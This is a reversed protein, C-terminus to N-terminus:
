WSIFLKARLWSTCATYIVNDVFDQDLKTSIHTESNIATRQLTSAQKCLAPTPPHPPPYDKGAGVKKKKKKKQLSFICIDYIMPISSKQPNVRGGKEGGGKTKKRCKISPRRGNETMVNDIMCCVFGVKYANSRDYFYNKKM